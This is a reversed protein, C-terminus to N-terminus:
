RPGCRAALAAVGSQAEALPITETEGELTVRLTRGRLVRLLAADLPAEGTLTVVDGLEDHETPLRLVVRGGESALELTAHTGARVRDRGDVYHLTFSRRATDCILLLSQDDTNPVEYALYLRGEGERREWSMEQAHAPLPWAALALLGALGLAPLAAARRATGRSEGSCRTGSM